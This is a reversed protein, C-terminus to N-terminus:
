SSRLGHFGNFRAECDEGRQRQRSRRQGDRSRGPRDPGDPEIAEGEILPQGLGRDHVDELVSASVDPEGGLVAQVPEIAERELDVLVIRRPLLHRRVRGRQGAAEYPVDLFVPRAVQPGSGGAPQGCPLSGGVPHDALLLQGAAVDAHQPERTALVCQPDAGAISPEDAEIEGASRQPAEGVVGGVSRAEGVVADVGEVEVALATQPHAGVATEVEQIGAAPPERVESGLRGVGRAEAVRLHAGDQPVVRARDPHARGAAAQVAHIGRGTAELAELVVGLRRGCQGM